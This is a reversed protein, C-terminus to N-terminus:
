VPSAAWTLGQKNGLSPIIPNSTHGTSLLLNERPILHACWLLLAYTEQNYKSEGAQKIM